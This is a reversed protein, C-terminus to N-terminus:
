MTSYCLRFPLFTFAEASAFTTIPSDYPHTDIKAAGVPHRPLPPPPPGKKADTYAIGNSWGPTLM